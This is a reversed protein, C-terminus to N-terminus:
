TEDDQPGLGLFESPPNRIGFETRLGKRGWKQKKVKAKQRKIKGLLFSVILVCVM